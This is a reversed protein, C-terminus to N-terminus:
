GINKRLLAATTEPDSDMSLDSDSDEEVGEFSGYKEFYNHALREARLQAIAVRLRAQRVKQRAAARRKLPESSRPEFPISTTEAVEELESVPLGSGRSGGGVGLAPLVEEELGPQEDVENLEWVIEYRGAQFIIRAPIWHLTLSKQTEMFQSGVAVIDWAFRVKKMFVDLTLPSSFYFAAKALFHRCFERYLQEEETGPKFPSLQVGKTYGTQLFVPGGEIRFVHKQQGRDYTPPPVEFEM